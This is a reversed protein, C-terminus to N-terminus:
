QLWCLRMDQAACGDYWEANGSETLVVLGTAAAPGDPSYYQGSVLSRTQQDSNVTRYTGLGAVAIESVADNFAAARPVRFVVRSWYTQCTMSRWLQVVGISKGENDKLPSSRVVGWVDWSQGACATAYANTGNCGSGSCSPPDVSASAVLPTLFFVGLAFLPVFCSLMGKWWPLRHKTKM